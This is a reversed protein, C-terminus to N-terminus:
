SLQIMKFSPSVYDSMRQHTPDKDTEDWLLYRTINIKGAIMKIFPFEYETRFEQCFSEHLWADLTDDDWELHIEAYDIDKNEALFYSIRPANEINYIVYFFDSLHEIEVLSQFDELITTNISEIHPRSLTTITKHM